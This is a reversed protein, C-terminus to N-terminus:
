DDFLSSEKTATSVVPTYFCVVDSQTYRPKGNNRVTCVSKTCLAKVLMAYYAYKFTVRVSPVEVYKKGHIMEYTAFPEIAGFPRLVENVRELAYKHLDRADM